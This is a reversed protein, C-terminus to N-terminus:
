EKEIQLSAWLSPNKEISYEQPLINFYIPDLDKTRNVQFSFGLRQFQIPDYGYLCYSPIFIKMTYNKSSFTSEVKLANPDCFDHRDELRFRTIEKGKKGAPFFVFHHCFRSATQAEKNDRTDFFLEISDGKRPESENSEIFPFMCNFFVTIGTDQYAMYVKTKDIQDTLDSLNEILYKKKEIDKDKLPYLPMQFSFFNLGSIRAIKEM